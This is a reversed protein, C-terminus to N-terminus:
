FCCLSKVLVMNKCVCCLFTHQATKCRFIYVCFDPWIRRNKLCIYFFADPIFLSSAWHASGTDSVKWEAKLFSLVCGEMCTSTGVLNRNMQSPLKLPSSKKLYRGILFLFQRHHGYKYVSRSSILLRWLPCEMSAEQWTESLKALRNWLLLNKFIPWDSVLIAQPPGHKTISWLLIHM